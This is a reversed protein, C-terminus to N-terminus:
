LDLFHSLGEFVHFLADLRVLLSNLLLPSQKMFSKFHSFVVKGCGINLKVFELSFQM